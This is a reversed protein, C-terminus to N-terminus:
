PVEEVEFVLRGLSNRSCDNPNAAGSFYIGLTVSGAPVGTAYGIIRPKNLSAGTSEALAFPSISSSNGGLIRRIEVFGFYGAGAGSFDDAYTIRLRTAASVKNITVTQGPALESVAATCSWTAPGGLYTMNTTRPAINQWANGNSVRLAKDSANFYIQGANAAAAPSPDAALNELRPAVMEGNANKQVFQEVSLGAFNIANGSSASFNAFSAANSFVAKPVLSIPQLPALVTFPDANGQQRVAIEMFRNGQDIIWDGIDIRVTFIGNSVAVNSITRPTGIEFGDAEQDFLTFRMEYNGNAPSGGENLKGQYTFAPTQSLGVSPSVFLLAM